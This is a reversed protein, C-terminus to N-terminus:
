QNIQVCHSVWVDNKLVSTEHWSSYGDADQMQRAGIIGGVAREDALRAHERARGGVVFLKNRYIAVQHMRRPSFWGNKRLPIEDSCTRSKALHGPYYQQCEIFREYTEGVDPIKGHDVVAWELLSHQKPLKHDYATRDIMDTNIAWTEGDPAALKWVDNRLGHVRNAQDFASREDADVDYDDGGILFLFSKGNFYTEGVDSVNSVAIAAGMRGSWHPHQKSPMYPIATTQNLVGTTQAWNSADTRLLCVLLLCSAGRRAAPRM